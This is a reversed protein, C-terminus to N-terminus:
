SLHLGLRPPDARTTVRKTAAAVLTEYTMGVPSSQIGLGRRGLEMALEVQHDDIQEGAVRRRPVVVPCKGAEFADLTAGVGAHTVVVDAEELAIALEAPPLWPVSRIPLDSTDTFGTQWLVEVGHPLIELLREVLTRFGQRWTGLTVVVKRIAVPRSGESVAFGDLVSGGLYLWPGGAWHRYQTYCYLGPVHQLARGTVSPADVRTCLELYHSTVGRLQALPLFSLAIGSGTSIADTFRCMNLVKWAATLNSICLRFNRSGQYPVYVVDQGALLSRSQITDNTVWVCRNEDIGLRNRLCHLEKLHGGTSAILLTSVASASGVNRKAPDLFVLLTATLLRATAQSREPRRM